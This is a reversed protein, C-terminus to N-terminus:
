RQTNVFRHTREELYFFTSRVVRKAMTQMTPLRHCSQHRRMRDFAASKELCFEAPRWTDNGEHPLSNSIYMNIDWQCNERRIPEFCARRLLFLRVRAHFSPSPNSCGQFGSRRASQPYLRASPSPAHSLLQSLLFPSLTPLLAPSSTSYM